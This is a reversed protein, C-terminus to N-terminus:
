VLGPNGQTPNVGGGWDNMRVMCEVNVGSVSLGASGCESMTCKKRRKCVRISVNQESRRGLKSTGRMM